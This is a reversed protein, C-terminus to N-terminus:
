RQLRTRAGAEVASRIGDLQTRLDDVEAREEQARDLMSAVDADSPGIHRHIFTDVPELLSRGLAATAGAYPAAEAGSVPPPLTATPNDNSM